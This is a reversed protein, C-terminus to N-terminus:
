RRIPLIEDAFAGRALAAEYRNHSRCAYADQGRRPFAHLRAGVYRRHRGDAARGVSLRIRGSVHRRRRTCPGDAYGKRLQPLLFPVRTMNEMGGALVVDADGLAISRAAQVVAWLGSGCALNITWAPSADPIGARIAVQRAPNPGLGAQRACGFITLGVDTPAVGAKALTSAAIRVGLEVASLDSWRGLFKGIPTRFAHTVVVRRM